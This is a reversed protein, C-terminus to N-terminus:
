EGHKEIDYGRHALIALAQARRLVARDYKEILSELEKKEGTTLKRADANEGLQRLRRQDASSLASETAAWLAEDSFLQMAALEDALSEPLDLQPPLSANVTSALVDEVTRHTVTAIRQLRYYLSEPIEVSVTQGM